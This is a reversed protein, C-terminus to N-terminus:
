GKDKPEWEKKSADILMTEDVPEDDSKTAVVTDKKLTLVKDIFDKHKIIDNDKVEFELHNKGHESSIKIGTLFMGKIKPIVSTVYFRESEAFTKWEGINDIKEKVRPSLEPIKCSVKLLYWYKDNEAKTWSKQLLNKSGCIVNNNTKKAITTEIKSTIFDSLTDIERQVTKFPDIGDHRAIYAFKNARDIREISEKVQKITSNKLEDEGFTFEVEDLNELKFVRSLPGQKNFKGITIDRPKINPPIDVISSIKDINESQVLVKIRSEPQKVLFTDGKCKAVMSFTTSKIIECGLKEAHKKMDLLNM